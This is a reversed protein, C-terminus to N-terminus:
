WYRGTRPLDVSWYGIRPPYTAEEFEDRFGAAAMTSKRWCLLARADTCTDSLAARITEAVLRSVAERTATDIEVRRNQVAGPARAFLGACIASDLPKKIM